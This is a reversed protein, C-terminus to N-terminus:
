CAQQATDKVPPILVATHDLVNEARIAMRTLFIIVFLVQFEKPTQRQMQTESSYKQQLNQTLSTCFGINDDHEHLLKHVSFFKNSASVYKNRVWEGKKFDHKEGVGQSNVRSVWLWVCIKEEGQAKKSYNELYFAFMCPNYFFFCEHTETLINNSFTLLSNSTGYTFQEQLIKSPFLFLYDKPSTFM